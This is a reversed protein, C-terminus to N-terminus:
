KVKKTCIKFNNMRAKAFVLESWPTLIKSNEKCVYDSGYYFRRLFKKGRSFHKILDKLEKIGVEWGLSDQWHVVNAFDIIVINRNITQKIKSLVNKIEQKNM